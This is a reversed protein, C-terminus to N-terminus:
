PYEMMESDVSGFVDPEIAMVMVPVEKQSQQAFTSWVDTIFAQLLLVVNNRFDPNTQSMQNRSSGLASYLNGYIQQM